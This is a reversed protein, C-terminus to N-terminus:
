NGWQVCTFVNDQAPTTKRECCFMGQMMLSAPQTILSAGAGSGPEARARHQPGVKPGAKPWSRVVSPYLRIPRSAGHRTQIYDSKDDSSKELSDLPRKAASLAPQLEPGPSQQLHYSTPHAGGGGLPSPENHWGLSREHMVHLTGQFLNPLLGSDRKILIFSM